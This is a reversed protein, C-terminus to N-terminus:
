IDSNIQAMQKKLISKEIEDIEKNTYGQDYMDKRSMFIRLAKFQEISVKKVDEPTIDLITSLYERVVKMSKMINKKSDMPISDLDQILFESLLYEEMTINKFEIDKGLLRVTKKTGVIIDLDLDAM